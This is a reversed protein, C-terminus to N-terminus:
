GIPMMVASIPTGKKKLKTMDIRLLAPQGHSQRDAIEVEAVARRRDQASEAGALQRAAFESRQDTWVTRAFRGQEAAGGTQQPRPGAADAEVAPVKGTQRLALPCAPDEIERLVGLRADRERDEVDDQEGALAQMAAERECGGGGIGMGDLGHDRLEAEAGEGRAVDGRERAALALEGRDALRQDALRVHQQQVLRGAREVHATLEVDHGRDALRRPM